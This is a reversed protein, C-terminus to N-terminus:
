LEGSEMADALARMLRVPESCDPRADELEDAKAYM